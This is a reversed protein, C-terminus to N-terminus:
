KVITYITFMMLLKVININMENFIGTKWYAFRIKTRGGRGTEAEEMGITREETMTMPERAPKRPLIWSSMLVSHIMQIKRFSLQDVAVLDGVQHEVSDRTQSLSRAPGGM